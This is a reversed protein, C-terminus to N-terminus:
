TPIRQNGEREKEVELELEEEEAAATAVVAPLRRPEEPVGGLLAGVVDGIVIGPPVGGVFRVRKGQRLEGGGGCQEAM